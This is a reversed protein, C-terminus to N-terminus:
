DMAWSSRKREAITLWRALANRRSSVASASSSIEPAARGTVFAGSVARAPRRRQQALDRGGGGALREGGALRGGEAVDGVLARERDVRRALPPRQCTRMVMSSPRSRSRRTSWARSRPPARPAAASAGGGACGVGADFATTAARARRRVARDAGVGVGDRVEVAGIARAGHEVRQQARHDLLARGIQVQAAALRGDEAQVALHVPEVLRRELREPEVRHEARDHRLAIAALVAVRVVGVVRVLELADRAEAGVRQLIPATGGGDETLNGRRDDGDLLHPDRGLHLLETLEVLSEHEDGPRRARALGRREARQDIEHIARAAIVDDRDLVRDLEHMRVLPADDRLALDAHVGARELARQAGRQALIGVDDEDALQAVELGDRDGDLRRLRAVEDEARQVRRRRGARDVADDILERGIPLRLDADHEGLRELADDRLREALLDAAAADGRALHQERDGATVFRMRSPFVKWIGVTM